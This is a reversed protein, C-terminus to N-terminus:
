SLTTSCGHVVLPKHGDGGEIPQVIGQLKTLFDSTDRIYYSEVLESLQREALEAMRETAQGRGSVIARM